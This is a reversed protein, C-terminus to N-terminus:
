AAHTAAEGPIRDPRDAGISGRRPRGAVLPALDLVVRAARRRSPMFRLFFAMRLTWAVGGTLEVGYLDAISRGLGYSAAQGLGRYAFPRTPRGDLARAVNRGAHAGTKIAWLANAPVPEGSRPHLVRAADGAAWIGEAVGLDPRTVLRGRGDRPLHELGPLAVPVQGITAVVTGPVFTTDPAAEGLALLAGDATVEALCTRLLTRVGLRHLEHEARDALRPHSVRLEPLLRDGRHVLLVDLVGGGLDAVAAALETGAIGGGAVVVTPREGASRAVLGRLHEVLQGIEGVGRLTHGHEALGPVCAVPERGGTGVVLEDYGILQVPGEDQGVPEVTLTRTAVDVSTARGHVVRALPCAEALPTRTRELPLLGALVEGTFGHFSHCDDASVVVIEVDGRCLAGGLRRVLSAYAHLTVYGGGLLVVRRM